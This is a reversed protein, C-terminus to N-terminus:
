VSLNDKLMYDNSVTLVEEDLDHTPVSRYFLIAWVIVIIAAIIAISVGVVIGITAGSPGNSEDSSTPSPTGSTFHSTYPDTASSTPDIPQEDLVVYFANQSVKKSIYYTKGSVLISPLSMSVNHAITTLDFGADVTAVLRSLDYLKEVSKQAFDVYINRITSNCISFYPFYDLGLDGQVKVLLVNCNELSTRETSDVVLNNVTVHKLTALRSTMVRLNNIIINDASTLAITDCDEPDTLRLNDITISKILINSIVFELSEGQFITNDAFKTDLVEGKSMNLDADIVVKKAQKFVIPVYTGLVSLKMYDATTSVVIPPMSTFQEFEKAVFLSIHNNTVIEMAKISKANPEVDLTLRYSNDPMRLTFHISQRITYTESQDNTIIWGYENFTLKINVGTPIVTIHAGQTMEFNPIVKDQIEINESIVRFLKYVFDVNNLAIFTKVDVIATNNASVFDIQANDVTIKECIDKINDVNVTAIPFIAAGAYPSRTLYLEVTQGNGALKTLDIVYQSRDMNQHLLFRIGQTYANVYDTWPKNKNVITETAASVESDSWIFTKYTYAPNALLKFLFQGNRSITNFVVREKTFLIHSMDWPDNTNVITVTPNVYFAPASILPIPNNVLADWMADTETPSQSHKLEINVSDARFGAFKIGNTAEFGIPIEFVIDHTMIAPLSASQLSGEIRTFGELTIKNTDLNAEGNIIMKQGFLRIDNSCNISSNGILTVLDAKLLAAMDNRISLRHTDLRISNFYAEQSIQILSYKNPTFILNAQYNVDEFIVSGGEITIDKETCLRATNEGLTLKADGRVTADFSIRDFLEDCKIAVDHNYLEAHLDLQQASDLYKIVLFPAVKNDYNAQVDRNKINLEISTTPKVFFINSQYSGLEVTSVKIDSGRKKFDIYLAKPRVATLQQMTYLDATIKKAVLTNETSTSFLKVNSLTIDGFELNNGNTKVNISIDKISITADTASGAPYMTYSLYADGHGIVSIPLKRTFINSCQFPSESSSFVHLQVDTDSDNLNDRIDDFKTIIISENPCEISGVSNFCFTKGLAQVSLLSFM